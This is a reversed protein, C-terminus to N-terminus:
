TDSMCGRVVRSSSIIVYYRSLINFLLFINFFLVVAASCIRKFYILFQAESVKTRRATVAHLVCESVRVCEALSPSLSLSPTKGEKQTNELKRTTSTRKGHKGAKKEVNTQKNIKQM